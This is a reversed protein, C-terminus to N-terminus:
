WMEMIEPIMIYCLLSLTFIRPTDKFTVKSRYFCFFVILMYLFINRADIYTDGTTVFANVFYCYITLLYMVLIYCLDVEKYEEKIKEIM